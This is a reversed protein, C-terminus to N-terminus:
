ATGLADALYRDYVIKAAEMNRADSTALLDAYVIIPHVVDDPYTTAPPEENWFADLIEVPGNADARLRHAIIIRDAKGAVYITVNAPRLYNTLKAAAAEGGWWARYQTLDAKQWWDRDPAAFRRANLKRRLILPYNTVWENLLQNAALLRPGDLAGLILYGRGQLDALIDGVIGLAVNAAAAINRYTGRVLRPQALLAFVIRLGATTLARPRRTTPVEKPRPQGAIFVFTGPVELYANGAADMFPLRLERCRKATERAIYPAILLVPYGGPAERAKVAAPTEFRDVRKIEAAFRLIQDPTAVEVVADAHIEHQAPQALVRVQLGTADAFAQTAKALLNAEYQIDQKM